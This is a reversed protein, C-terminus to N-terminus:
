NLINSSLTMGCYEEPFIYYDNYKYIDIESAKTLLYRNIQTFLPTHGIEPCGVHSIEHIAVYMLLNMDHIKNTKKSRLCFVMEQGKNVSYSTFKSNASSERIIINDIKNSINDIYQKMDNEIDTKIYEILQKLKNKIESLTNAAIQKDKLNRVLYINNDIFSEIFTVETKNAIIFLLIINIFIIILITEKM